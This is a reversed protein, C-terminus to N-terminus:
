ERVTMGKRTFYELYRTIMVNCHFLLLLGNGGVCTHALFHIIIIENSIIVLTGSIGINAGSPKNWTIVSQRYIIIWDMGPQLLDIDELVM